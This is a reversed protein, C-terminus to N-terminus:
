RQTIRDDVGRRGHTGRKAGGAAGPHPAMLPSFGDSIMCDTCSKGLPMVHLVEAYSLSIVALVEVNM